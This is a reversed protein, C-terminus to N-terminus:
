CRADTLVPGGCVPSPLCPCFGGEDGKGLLKGQHAITDDPPFFTAKQLGCQSRCAQSSVAKVTVLHHATARPLLPMQSSTERLVVERIHVAITLSDSHCLCWCPLRHCCSLSEM